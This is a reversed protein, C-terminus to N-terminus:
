LPVNICWLDYERGKVRALVTKKWENKSMTVKGIVCDYLMSDMGYKQCVRYLMHTPGEAKRGENGSHLELIQRVTVARFINDSALYITKYLFM